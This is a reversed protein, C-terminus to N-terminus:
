TSPVLDRYSGDSLLQLFVKQNSHWHIWVKGAKRTKRSLSSIELAAFYFDRDNLGALWNQRKVCQKIAKDVDLLSEDGAELRLVEELRRGISLRSAEFQRNAALRVAPNTSKMDKQFRAKFKSRWDERKLSLQDRHELTWHANIPRLALIAASAVPVPLLLTEGEGQGKTHKEAREKAAPPVPRLPQPAPQVRQNPGRKNEDGSGSGDGDVEKGRGESEERHNDKARSPHPQASVGKSNTTPGFPASGGGGVADPSGSSECENQAGSQRMSSPLHWMKGIFDAREALWQAKQQFVASDQENGRVRATTASRRLAEAQVHLGLFDEKAKLRAQVLRAAHERREQLPLNRLIDLNKGLKLAGKAYSEARETERKAAKKNKARFFADAQARASKAEGELFRIRGKERSEVKEWVRLRWVRLEPNSHALFLDEERLGTADGYFDYWPLDQQTEGLNIGSPDDDAEGVEEDSSLDSKNNESEDSEAESSFSNEHSMLDLFQWSECAMEAKKLYYRANERAAKKAERDGQRTHKAIDRKYKAARRNWHEVKKRAAQREQEIRELVEQQENLTADATAKLRERIKASEKAFSKAMKSAYESKGEGENSANAKAVAAYADLREARHNELVRADRWRAIAALRESNEPVPSSGIVVIEDDAQEEADESDSDSCESETLSSESDFASRISADGGQHSKEDDSDSESGSDSGSSGSDTDGSKSDPQAPKSPTKSRRSDNSLGERIKRAEEEYEDAFSEQLAADRAYGQRLAFQAAKGRAERARKELSQAKDEASRKSDFVSAERQRAKSLPVRDYVRDENREAEIRDQEKKRAARSLKPEEEVSSDSSDSSIWDIPKRRPKVKNIRASKRANQQAPTKARSARRQQEEGHSSDSSKEEGDDSCDDGNNVPEDEESSDSSEEVHPTTSKRSIKHKSKVKKKQRKKKPTKTKCERRQQEEGQSGDSSEGKGDDSSDNGENASEVEESSNSSKRMRSTISKRSKKHKSKLKEEQHKKKKKKPTKTKQPRRRQEEDSDSSEEEGNDSFDDDDNSSGDEKSSDPSEEVRSTTNKRSKNHKRKSKEEQSKKKPTKAKQVKRQKEEGDSSDSSEEGDDNSSKNNADSPDDDESIHSPEELRSTTSKRSERMKKKPREEQRKKKAKLAIQAASEPGDSEESSSKSKDHSDVDMIMPGEDVDIEVALKPAPVALPQNSSEREVKVSRSSEPTSSAIHSPPIILPSSGPFPAWYHGAPTEHRFRSRDPTRPLAPLDAVEDYGGMAIDEPGDNDKKTGKQGIKARSQQEAAQSEHRFNEVSITRSHDDDSSVNQAKGSKKAVTRTSKTAKKKRSPQLETESDSDNRAARSRKGGMGTATTAVMPRAGNVRETLVRREVVPNEEIPIPHDESGRMISHPSDWSVAPCFETAEWMRRDSRREEGIEQGPEQKIVGRWVGWRNIKSDTDWHHLFQKVEKVFKSPDSIDVVAFSALLRIYRLCIERTASAAKQYADKKPYKGSIRDLYHNKIIERDSGRQVGCAGYEDHYPRDPSEAAVLRSQLYNSCQANDNWLWRPMPRALVDPVFMAGNWGKIDFVKYKLRDDETKITSDKSLLVNKACPDKHLLIYSKISDIGDFFAEDNMENAVTYLNRFWRNMDSHVRTPDPEIDRGGERHTYTSNAFSARRKFMMCLWEHLNKPKPGFIDRHVPSIKLYSDDLKPNVAMDPVDSSAILYGADTGHRSETIAVILSPILDLRDQALFTDKKMVTEAEEGNAHRIIYPGGLINDSTADYAAIGIGEHGSGLHRCALLTAVVEDKIITGIRNSNHVSAGAIKERLPTYLQLKGGFPLKVTAIDNRLAIRSPHGLKLKALLATIKECYDDFSDNRPGWLSVDHNSSYGYSNLM